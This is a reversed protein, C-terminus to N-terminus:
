RRPATGRLGRGAPIRDRLRQEGSRWGPDGAILGEDFGAAPKSNKVTDRLSQMRATFQDLPLFRETDIALFFHSVKMPRKSVRLGGVDTLMASGSLVACLVEVM